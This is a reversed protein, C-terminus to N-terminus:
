NPWHLGLAASLFVAMQGRTLPSDPCFNGGGCGATIGSAYLAEVFKFFPHGTPVDGFTAVGPAPSVQLKYRVRVGRWRLDSTPSTATGVWVVYASSTNDVTPPSAPNHTAVGWGGFGSSATAALTSYSDGSAPFQYIFANLNLSANWDYYYLDIGTILAGDPLSLPAWAQANTGAGLFVGSGNGDDNVIIDPRAGNFAAAGVFLMAETATGYNPEPSAASVPAAPSIGPNGTEGAALRHDVATGGLGLILAAAHILLRDRFVKM